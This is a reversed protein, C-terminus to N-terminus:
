DVFADASKNVTEANAEPHMYQRKKKPFFRVWIEAYERRSRDGSVSFSEELYGTVARYRQEETKREKIRDRWLMLWIAIAYVASLGVIVFFIAWKEDPSTRKTDFDVLEVGAKNTSLSVKPPNKGSFLLIFGLWRQSNFSQNLSTIHWELVKKGKDEFDSRREVNKISHRDPLLESAFVLSGTDQTPQDVAVFISFDSAPKTTRNAITIYVFALDSDTKGNYTVHFDRKIEDPLRFVSPQSKMTFEIEQPSNKSAETMLAIRYGLISTVIALIVSVIFKKMLSKTAATDCHLNVIM